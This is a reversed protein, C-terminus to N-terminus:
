RLLEIIKIVGKGPLLNKLPPAAFFFKRAENIVPLDDPQAKYIGARVLVTIATKLLMAKVRITLPSYRGPHFHIYRGPETGLRLAWFSGDKLTLIQHFTKGSKVWAKYEREEYMGDRKLLYSIESAIEFPQLEGLYM